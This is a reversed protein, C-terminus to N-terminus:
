GDDKVTSNKPDKVDASQFRGREAMSAELKLPTILGLESQEGFGIM